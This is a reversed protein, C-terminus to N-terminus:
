VEVRAGIAALTRRLPEILRKQLEDPTVYYLNGKDRLGDIFDVPTFIFSSYGDQFSYEIKAIPDLSDHPEVHLVGTNAWHRNDILEFGNAEALAGITAIVKDQTSRAM